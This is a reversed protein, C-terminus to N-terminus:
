HTQTQCREAEKTTVKLLTLGADEPPLLAPLSLVGCVVLGLVLVLINDAM